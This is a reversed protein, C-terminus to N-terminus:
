MDTDQVLSPSYRPHEMNKEIRDYVAKLIEADSLHFHKDDNFSNQLMELFECHSLAELYAVFEIYGIEDEVLKTEYIKM